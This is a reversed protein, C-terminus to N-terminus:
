KWKILRWSVANRIIKIVFKVLDYSIRRMIDNSIADTGISSTHGCTCGVNMDAATANVDSAQTFHKLEWPNVFVLTPHPQQDRECTYAYFHEPVIAQFQYGNFCIHTCTYIYSLHRFELMQFCWLFARTIPTYLQICVSFLHWTIGYKWAQPQHFFSYHFFIIGLAPHVRFVLTMNYRTKLGTTPPFCYYHFFIIGFLFGFKITSM